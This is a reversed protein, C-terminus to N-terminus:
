DRGGCNRPVEEYGQVGPKEAMKAKVSLAFTELASFIDNYNTGDSLILAFLHILVRETYQFGKIEKPLPTFDGWQEMIVDELLRKAKKFSLNM